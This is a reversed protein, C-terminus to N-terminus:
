EFFLEVVVHPIKRELMRRRYDHVLIHDDRATATAFSRIQFRRPVNAPVVGLGAFATPNEVGHRTWTLKAVVRPFAIRPNERAARVVPGAHADVHLAAEDKCAN